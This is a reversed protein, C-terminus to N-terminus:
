ASPPRSALALLQPELGTMDRPEARDQGMLDAMWVGDAALRVIELLPTDDTARHAALHGDLWDSWLRRMGPDAVMTVSLAAWPSRVGLKHDAFAARVYARTFRGFPQPDEAMYRDIEDTLQKLLDAFVAELLAQKNAFHHLLGGKTVGAATAVAQITIAAPGQDVALKATRDLLSRRVKDPEKKRMHANAM